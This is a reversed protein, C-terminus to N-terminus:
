PPSLHSILPTEEKAAAAPSSGAWDARDGGVTPALAEPRTLPATPMGARDKVNKTKEARTRSEVSRDELGAQGRSHGFEHFWSSSSKKESAVASKM